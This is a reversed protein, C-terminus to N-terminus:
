DWVGDGHWLTYHSMLINIIHASTFRAVIHVCDPNGCDDMRAGLLPSDDCSLSGVIGGCPIIPIFLPKRPPASLPDGLDSMKGRGFRPSCPVGYRLRLLVGVGLQIDEFYM